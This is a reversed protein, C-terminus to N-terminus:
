VLGVVIAMITAFFVLSSLTGTLTTAITMIRPWTSSYCTKFSHSGTFTFTTTSQCISSCSFSEKIWIILSNCPLSKIDCVNM